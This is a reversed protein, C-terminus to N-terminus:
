ISNEDNKFSDRLQQRMIEQQEKLKTDEHAYWQYRTHPVQTEEFSSRVAMPKESMKKLGAESVGTSDLDSKMNDTQKNMRKRSPMTKEDAKMMDEIMADESFKFGHDEMWDMVGQSNLGMNRLISAIEAISKEDKLSIPNYSFEINKFGLATMLQKNIESAVKQQLKKIRTEFSFIQAESNGRNSSDAIGVWIPPVRTIMLVENRLYELVRILGDDFKIQNAIVTSEGTAVLDINPNTRARLLNEIFQRRQGDNANKLVYMMKPPLYRFITQLYQNAYVKSSYSRSIPELPNKSYVDSGIWKLRFHIVDEPIWEVEPIKANKPKQVYGLVRGNQDFKIHMETTELPWLEKISGNLRRLELYADGHILLQYLINDQVTDWDLEDYFLREAREVERKNEGTFSFGNMTCVDVTTDIATSLVADSRFMELLTEYDTQSQQINDPSNSIYDHAIGLSARTDMLSSKYSIVEM